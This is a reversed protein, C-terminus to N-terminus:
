GETVAESIYFRILIDQVLVIGINCLGIGWLNFVAVHDPLLAEFETSVYLPGTPISKSQENPKVRDM